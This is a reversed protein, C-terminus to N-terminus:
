QRGNELLKTEVAAVAAMTVINEVSEGQQLVHVAANIGLLIPGIMEAGGLKALLKYAINASGLDPFVLVNADRITSFPYIEEMLQGDVAFDAQVEGDVRIDPRREHLIKVADRVKNSMPHSTAGFNSFSLMAVVPELEIGRAFDHALMAIEALDEANTDLNVTADTFVYVQGRVLMLYIGSAKSIGPLTHFIQLAPRIIRPYSATVGALYTDADGMYVMMPGFVTPDTISQRAATLTMGKRKRLDYYAQVYAELQGCEDPYVIEPRYDLGLEAITSMIVDPDGLLIPHGIGEEEVQLAARIIKTEEGESFVIRKPAQRAKNCFYRKIRSALGQRQALRDRYEELDIEIGAVGSDMAAQAVAPAEWMLVRPDLPKPILYDRGFMIPDGGYAAVVSDPVDEHALRALAHAAALKMEDNIATAAVDLAGRFIFPFGLVNNVQNPYDSRGTGIIADPRAARAEEYSIEPTPNAMAFILPDKAMSQVMEQTVLNGVSLGLFVDAGEMIEALTRCNTKAAFAAKYPNMEEERGEYVVGAIDYMIINERKIGLSVYFNACATGAAGAGCIVVRVNEIRKGVLELGNILAAASIIATGHQDDHFVPIPLLSRLSNEIYFCEPSKIDELNIGGFTPAIAKVVAILEDPDQTDLEIDFVDIDAFSKFLVGKGEMVPKSALPGRNGLGLIATGNSVVAVLNSKATYRYAMLPDREVELVAEAVGPSYALSLHRQTTLPKTAIVEIKGPRGQSHYDLVDQKTFKMLSNGEIFYRGIIMHIDYQSGSSLSSNGSKEM